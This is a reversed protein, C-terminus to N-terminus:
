TGFHYTGFTNHVSISRGRSNWKLDSSVVIGLLKFTEVREINPILPISVSHSSTIVMEKTKRKNIQMKNALLWQYLEKIYGAM